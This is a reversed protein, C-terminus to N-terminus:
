SRAPASTIAPASMDQRMCRSPKILRSPLFSRTRCTASSSSSAVRHRLVGLPGRLEDRVIGAQVPVVLRDPEHAVLPVDGAAEDRFPLLQAAEARLDLRVRERPKGLVQFLEFPVGSGGARRHMPRAIGVLVVADHVSDQAVLAHGPQHLALRHESLLAVEIGIENLAADLHDVRVEAFADDLEGLLRGTVDDHGGDVLLLLLDALEEVLLQSRRRPQGIGLLEGLGRPDVQALLEEGRM